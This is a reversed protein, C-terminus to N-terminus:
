LGVVSRFRNAEQGFNAEDRANVYDKKEEVTLAYLSLPQSAEYARICIHLRLASCAYVNESFSTSYKTYNRICNTRNITKVRM